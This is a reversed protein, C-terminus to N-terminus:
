VKHIYIEEIMLKYNQSPDNNIVNFEIKIVRYEATNIWITDTFPGEIIPGTSGAMRLKQAKLLQWSSDPLKEFIEFNWEASDKYWNVGKLKVGEIKTPSPFILTIEDHNYQCDWFNSSVQHDMVKYIESGGSGELITGVPLFDLM